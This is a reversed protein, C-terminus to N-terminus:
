NLHIKTNQQIQNLKTKHRGETSQCQQNPWKVRLFRGRYSRYHTQHSTLGQEVRNIMGTLHHLTQRHIFNVVYLKESESDDMINPTVRHRYTNCSADNGMVNRATISPMAIACRETTRITSTHNGALLLRRKIITLVFREVTCVTYLMCCDAVCPLLSVVCLSDRLVAAVVLNLGSTYAALFLRCRPKALLGILHAKVECANVLHRWQLSTSSMQYYSQYSHRQNSSAQIQASCLNQLLLFLRTNLLKIERNEDTM